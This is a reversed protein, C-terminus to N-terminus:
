LISLQHDVSQGLLLQEGSQIIYNYYINNSYTEIYLLIVRIFIFNQVYCINHESLQQTNYFLSFFIYIIAGDHQALMMILITNRFFFFVSYNIIVWVYNM